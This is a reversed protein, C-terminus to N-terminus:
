KSKSLYLNTSRHEIYAYFDAGLDDYKAKASNCQVVHCIKWGKGNVLNTNFENWTDTTIRVLGKGNANGELYTISNSDYGLVIMSHGSSGNYSGDSNGTTRIYAGFGVGANVFSSYSASSQNTLVTKSDKWYGSIGSGHYPIDGFLYYYVANAYIYCQYGSIKGAVSYQRNINMSQGLAYKDSYNSFLAVNGQFINDLKSAYAASYSSGRAGGPTTITTRAEARIPVLSLCLCLVLLLSLMQKKM